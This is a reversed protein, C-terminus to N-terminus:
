TRVSTIAHESFASMVQNHCPSGNLCMCNNYPSFSSALNLILFFKINCLTPCTLKAFLDEFKVGDPKTKLLAYTGIAESREFRNSRAQIMFTYQMQGCLTKM